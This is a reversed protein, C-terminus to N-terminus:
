IHNVILDKYSWERVIKGQDFEIIRDCFRLSTFRHAIVFMTIDEKALNGISQTIEEETENDLASTAEDFFIIKPDLYLTRAIGVRQRQGGSIQAGREGVITQLGEPLSEILSNLSARRISDDLM